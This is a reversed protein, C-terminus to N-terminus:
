AFLMEVFFFYPRGSVAWREGGVAVLLAVPAQFHQPSLKM